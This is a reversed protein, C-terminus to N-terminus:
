STRSGIGLTCIHPNFFIFSHFGWPKRICLLGESGDGRGRGMEGVLRSSFACSRDAKGGARSENMGDGGELEEKIM